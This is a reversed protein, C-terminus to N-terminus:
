ANQLFLGDGRALAESNLIVSVVPCVKLAAMTVLSIRIKLVSSSKKKKKKKNFKAKRGCHFHYSIPFLLLLSFSPNSSVTKNCGLQSAKLQASIM